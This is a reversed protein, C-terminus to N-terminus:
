EIRLLPWARLYEIDSEEVVGLAWPGRNKAHEIAGQIEEPTANRDVRLRQGPYILDADEIQDQNARFLLPWLYPNGYIAGREAIDWLNDGPRVVYIEPERGRVASVLPSILEFARRGEKAQYAQEAQSLRAAEAETMRGRLAQGEEILPRARELYHQNIALEAERGAQEALRKARAYDGGAFAEEAAKLKAESDRWLAGLRRAEEIRERAAAIAEEAAARAALEEPSPGAPQPPPASPAGAAEVVPPEEKPTTACGAVVALAAASLILRTHKYM